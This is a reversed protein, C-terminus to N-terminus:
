KPAGLPINKREYEHTLTLLVELRDGEPTGKKATGMLSEIERLAEKHDDATHIPKVAQPRTPIPEPPKRTEWLTLKGDKECFDRTAININLGYPHAKKVKPHACYPDMDMDMGCYACHSCGDPDTWIRLKGPKRVDQAKAAKKLAETGVATHLETLAEELSFAGSVRTMVTENEVAPFLSDPRREKKIVCASVEDMGDYNLPNPAFEVRVVYDESAERQRYYSNVIERSLEMHDTPMSLLYVPRVLTM